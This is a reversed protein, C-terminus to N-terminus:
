GMGDVMMLLLTRNLVGDEDDQVVNWSRYDQMEM